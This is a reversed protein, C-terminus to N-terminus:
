KGFVTYKMDLHPQRDYTIFFQSANTNPGDNAMSVIGRSDHKLNENLEDEFKEGWISRGQKGTGSPDGTQIM